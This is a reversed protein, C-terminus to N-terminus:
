KKLVVDARDPPITNDIRIPLTYIVDDTLGYHKKLVRYVSPHVLIELEDDPNHKTMFIIEHILENIFQNLDPLEITVTKLTIM